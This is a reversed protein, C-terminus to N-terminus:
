IERVVQSAMTVKCNGNLEHSTTDVTDESVYRLFDSTVYLLLCLTTMLFLHKHDQMDAQKSSLTALSFLM